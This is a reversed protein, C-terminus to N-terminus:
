PDFVRVGCHGCCGTETVKSDLRKHCSRCIFGRKLRWMWDGFLIGGLVVTVLGLLLFSRVILRTRDEPLIQEFALVCLFGILWLICCLGGVFLMAIFWVLISRGERTATARKAIFEDRTMEYYGVRIVGSAGFSGATVCGPSLSTPM